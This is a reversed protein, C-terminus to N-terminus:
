LILVEGELEKKDHELQEVRKVLGEIQKSNDSGLQYALNATNNAKAILTKNEIISASLGNIKDDFHNKLSNETSKLSTSLNQILTRLDM